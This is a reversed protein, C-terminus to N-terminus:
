AMGQKEFRRRAEHVKRELFRRLALAVSVGVAMGLLGRIM